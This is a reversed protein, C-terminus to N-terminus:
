EVIVVTSETTLINHVDEADIANLSICGRRDEADSVEATGHIAMGGGINLYHNGYPNSPDAAPIRQYNADTYDQGSRSKSLVRYKGPQPVPETGIQIRFTGAYLGQVFLTLRKKSLSIEAHFPGQVMKLETGPLLKQPDDIVNRNINHILEPTIRNKASLLDLTDNPRVFYSEVLHHEESYIVKGALPDLWSALNQNEERTLRPDDYFKSLLKLAELFQNDRILQEAREMDGLVQQEFEAFSGQVFRQSPDSADLEATTPTSRSPTVGVTGTTGPTISTPFAVTAARTPSDGVRGQNVEKFAMGNGPSSGAPSSESPAGTPSSSPTFDSSAPQARPEFSGPPRDTLYDSSPRPPRVQENPPDLPPDAPPRTRDPFAFESPEPPFSSPPPSMNVPLNRHNPGTPSRSNNMDGTASPDEAAASDANNAPSDPQDFEALLNTSPPSIPSDDDNIVQYIGYLVGLLIAVIVISKVSDM